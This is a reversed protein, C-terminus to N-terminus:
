LIKRVNGYTLVNDKARDSNLAKFPYDWSFISIEQNQQIAPFKRHM